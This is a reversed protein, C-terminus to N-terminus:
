KIKESAIEKLLNEVKKDEPWFSLIQKAIEESKKYDNKAQYIELLGYLYQPRRPSITLGKKYYSEATQIYKENNTQYFAALNLTGLLYMLQGLNPNPGRDIIPKAYSEIYRVLEDVVAEPQKSRQLFSLIISITNKTLEEQGIPSYYDLVGSFAQEFEGVSQYQGLNHLASIYATSKRLPLFNGFYGVIVILAVLLSVIIQKFHQSM